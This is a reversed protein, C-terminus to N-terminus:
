GKLLLQLNETELAVCTGLTEAIGSQQPLMGLIRSTQGSAIIRVCRGLQM